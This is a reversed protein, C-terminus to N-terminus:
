ISTLLSTSLANLSFTVASVLSLSSRLFISDHSYSTTSLGESTVPNVSCHLVPSKPLLLRQLTHHPCDPLRVLSLPSCLSLSPIHKVGELLRILFSLPSPEAKEPICTSLITETHYPVISWINKSQVSYSNSSFLSINSSSLTLALAFVLHFREGSRWEMVYNVLCVHIWRQKMELEKKSSAYDRATYKCFREKAMELGRTAATHCRQSTGTSYYHRGSSGQQSLAKQWTPSFIQM